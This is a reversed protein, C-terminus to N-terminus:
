SICRSQAVIRSFPRSTMVYYVRVEVSAAHTSIMLRESLRRIIIIAEFSCKSCVRDCLNTSGNFHQMLHVYYTIIAMFSGFTIIM